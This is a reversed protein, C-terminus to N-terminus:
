VLGFFTVIIWMSLVVPCDDFWIPLFDNLCIDTRSQSHLEMVVLKPDVQWLQMLEDTTMNKLMDCTLQVVKGRLAQLTIATQCVKDM